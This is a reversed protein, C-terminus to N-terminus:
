GPLREIQEEDSLELHQLSRAAARAHLPVEDDDVASSYLDWHLSPSVPILPLIFVIFEDSFTGLM